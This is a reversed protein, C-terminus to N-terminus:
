TRRHKDTKADPGADRMKRIGLLGIALNRGARLGPYLFRSVKPNAFVARTLAPRWGRRSGLLALINIADGGEFIQGRWFVLMGEDIDLGAERAAAVDAMYDRANVNRVVGVNEKLRQYTVFNTCFPCEGDYVIVVDGGPRGFANAPLLDENVVM